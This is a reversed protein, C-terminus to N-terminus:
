HGFKKSLTQIIAELEHVSKYKLDDFKQLDQFDHNPGPDPTIVHDEINYGLIISKLLPIDNETLVKRSHIVYRRSVKLAFLLHRQFRKFQEIGSLQLMKNVISPDIKEMYSHNVKSRITVENM